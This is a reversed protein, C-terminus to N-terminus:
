ETIFRALVNQNDIVDEYKYKVQIRNLYFMLENDERISEIRYNDALLVRVRTNDENNIAIDLERKVWRSNASDYTLLLVFHKAFRLATPIVISYERGQPIGDPAMWVKLGHKQMTDRLLTAKMVNQSSYSIFFFEEQLSWNLCREMDRVVRRISQEYRYEYNSRDTTSEAYLANIRNIVYNHKGLFTRELLSYHQSDRIFQFTHHFFSDLSPGYPTDIIRDLDYVQTSSYDPGRGKTVPMLLMQCFGLYVYDRKRKIFEMVFDAFEIENFIIRGLRPSDIPHSHLDRNHSDEFEREEMDRYWSERLYPEHFKKDFVNGTSVNYGPLYFDVDNSVVDMIHFNNHIFQVARSDSHANALIILAWDKRSRYKVDDEFSKISKIPVGM